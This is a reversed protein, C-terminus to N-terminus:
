FEIEQSPPVTKELCTDRLSKLGSTCTRGYNSYLHSYQGPTILYSRLWVDRWGEFTKKVINSMM